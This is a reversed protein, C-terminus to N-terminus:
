AEDDRKDLWVGNEKKYYDTNLVLQFRTDLIDDFSYSKQEVSEMERGDMLADFNDLLQQQDMLGLSFLTFDSVNNNEDVQLVVENYAEPWSGAVLEYQDELMQRSDVLEEWVDNSSMSDTGMMSQFELMQGFGMKELVQNPNVQVAGGEADRNYIMLDFDYGYQIASSNDKIPCDDEELYAKFAELNNENKKSYLTEMLDSILPSSQITGKKAPTTDQNVGAMAEMMVSMDVSSSELVVPYSAM